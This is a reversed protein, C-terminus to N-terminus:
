ECTPQFKNTPRKFYTVSHSTFLIPFNVITGTYVTFGPRLAFDTQTM